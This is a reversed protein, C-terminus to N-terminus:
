GQQTDIHPLIESNNVKMLLLTDASELLPSSGLRMALLQFLTYFPMFQLGTEAFIEEKSVTAFAKEFIGDTRSDRYHYPNGLLEDGRGLM